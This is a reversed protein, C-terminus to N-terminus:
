LAGYFADILAYGGAGGTLGARMRNMVYGFGLRVDPDAYGISGGAGPHGFANLSPGLPMLDHRLMFGMGFRMPMGGLVRDPGFSQEVTAAALTEPQVIRVGDLEGGRALAGYFRAVAAATGHGNAAPIEAARWARSNVCGRPQRPNNFAAGTLTTPDAMDRMFDAMPGKLKVERTKSPPPGLGGIMEATRSDDIANLGIHFDLGLPEAVRRRFSTGLSEGCVRRVVEGVLHGFTVAHYGHDTGPEWWPREDALAGAMRDWDYLAEEPLPTRVGPLGARHSLLWRVPLDGKDHAAFEPWYRAVPADPDLSGEEILQHACLATMGKTTSYVNVLTDRTWPRTREADAHGGWLDVVVHGDLVCCVSAGVEGGDRFNQAFVEEVARFRTDCVGQVSVEGSRDNAM